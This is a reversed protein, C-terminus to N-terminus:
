EGGESLVLVDTVAKAGAAPEGPTVLVRVRRDGRQFLMHTEGPAPPAVAPANVGPLKLGAQEMAKRTRPDEMAKRLEPDAAMAEDLMGKMIDAAPGSGAGPAAPQTWGKAELEKAYFAAAEAVTGATRYRLVGPHSEVERADALRPVEPVGPPCGAPLAIAKPRSSPTLEYDWTLTGRVGSGLYATDAAIELRYRVLHGGPAAVWLEGKAKGAGALGLGREDFRYHGSGAEEAGLVGPLSAAPDLPPLLSDAPDLAAAACRQGERWRYRVGEREATLVAGAPAGTGSGEIRLLRTAPSKTAQYRYRSSWGHPEGARTGAFSVRLAWV